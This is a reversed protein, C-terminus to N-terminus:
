VVSAKRMSNLVVQNGSFDNAITQSIAVGHQSL